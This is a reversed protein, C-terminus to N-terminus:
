IMNAHILFIQIIQIRQNREWLNSFHKINNTLKYNLAKEPNRNKLFKEYLRQKKKSSKVLCKTM